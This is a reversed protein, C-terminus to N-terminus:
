EYKESSLKSPAYCPLCKIRLITIIRSRTTIAV